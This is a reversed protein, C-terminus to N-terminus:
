EGIEAHRAWDQAREGLAANGFWKRHLSKADRVDECTLVDEDLRRGPRALREGEADRHGLADLGVRAAGRGEDERGGALEGLLDDVLQARDRLGSGQLDGGDEAPDADLRLRPLGSLGVDDDGGGAAELVQEVAAGEVQLLDLQEDEVLGVAHEVDAELGAISRITAM